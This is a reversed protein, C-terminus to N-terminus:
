LELVLVQKTDTVAYYKKGTEKKCTFETQKNILIMKDKSDSNNTTCECKTGEESLIAIIETDKSGFNTLTFIVEPGNEDVSTFDIKEEMIERNIRNIDTLMMATSQMESGFVFIAIGGMLLLGASVLLIENMYSMASLNTSISLAGPPIHPWRANVSQIQKIM